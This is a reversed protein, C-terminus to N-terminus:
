SGGGGIVIVIGLWWRRAVLAWGGIGLWWRGAVLAVDGCDGTALVVWLM